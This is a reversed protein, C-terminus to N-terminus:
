RLNPRESLSSLEHPLGKLGYRQLLKAMLERFWPQQDPSVYVKHILTRLNVPVYIGTAHSTMKGAIFDSMEDDPPNRVTVARIEREHAFSMRKNFVGGFGALIPAWEAEYDRYTVQGIYVSPEDDTGLADCLRKFTSQIAIGKGAYLKWMAESEYPSIHWCNVFVSGRALVVMSKHAADSQDYFGVQDAPLEGQEILARFGATWNMVPSTPMGEFPDSMRDIRSFHLRTGELMDLFKALDMYRWIKADEDVPVDLYSAPMYM